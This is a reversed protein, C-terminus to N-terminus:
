CCGKKKEKPKQADEKNLQVSTLRQRKQEDNSNNQNLVLTVLERIANDIGEGTKASTEFYKYNNEKAFKEADETNVERGELDIKNGLIIIPMFVNQSDINKKISSIWDKLGYFTENKTIDFVLLVGEANRFLNQTLSKFREQGATDWLKIEFKMGNVNKIREIYSATKTTETKVPSKGTAYKAVLSTKGVNMSGVVIIKVPITSPENM